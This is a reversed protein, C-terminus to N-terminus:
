VQTRRKRQLDRIAMFLLFMVGIAGSAMAAYDVPTRLKTMTIKQTHPVVVMLNPTARYIDAAGSTVTWGPYDSIKVLVPLETKNVEFSVQDNGVALATVETGALKVNPVEDGPKVRPWTAPGDQVLNIQTSLPSRQWTNALSIWDADDVKPEVVVPSATLPTVVLSDAVGWATWPGLSAIDVLNKQQKAEAKKEDGHTVYYRIGLQSMRVVGGALNPPEEVEPPVGRKEGSSILSEMNLVASATASSDTLVGSSSTLCGKSYIPALWHASPEGWPAGQANGRDMTVRGCGDAAAVQVLLESLQNLETAMAPDTVGRGWATMRDNYGTVSTGLATTAESDGNRPTTELWWGWRLGISAVMIVLAIVPLLQALRSTVAGSRAAVIAIVLAYIGVAALLWIGLLYLPFIRVNYLPLGEPIFVFAIGAALTCIALAGPLAWRNRVTSFVGVIAVLLLVVTAFTGLPLLGLEYDTLKPYGLPTMWTRRVLFPIWWVGSLALSTLGVLGTRRWRKKWQPFLIVTLSIAGIAFWLTPVPHSLFTAAVALSTVIPGVGSTLFRTVLGLSLVAFFLSWSYAFEGSLNSLISGGCVRCTTDFLMPLTAVAMVAPMLKPLDALRGAAWAAAPLLILPLVAALKVAVPLAILQSLAAGFAIPLPPYLQNIPFGLFATDSWSGPLLAALNTKTVWITAAHGTYDTGAPLVRALISSPGLALLVTLCSGIVAVAESIKLTLAATRSNM